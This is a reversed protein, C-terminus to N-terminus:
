SVLALDERTEPREVRQGPDVVISLLGVKLLLQDLVLPQRLDPVAEMREGRGPQARLSEDRHTQERCREARVLQLLREEFLDSTPALARLRGRTDQRLRRQVSLRGNRVDVQHARKHM